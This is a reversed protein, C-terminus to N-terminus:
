SRRSRLSVALDSIEPSDLLLAAGVYVAAGVLLGGSLEVYVAGPFAAGDMLRLWAYLGGAMVAAAGLHRGACRGLAGAKLGDLARRACLWLLGANVTAAISTALALGVHDLDALSLRETLGALVAVAGKGGPEASGMLALGCVANLVLAVAATLVPVRPRELVYFASVLVRTSAVGLLGVAYARLAGATMAGDAATFEGREFLATVIPDALMCLGVTAPICLCWVLQLSHLTVQAMERYRQASAHAALSPLATTGVAVAVIGLPFELFRDAYWLYSISRPPLVSALMTAVVVNIQYAAGGLLTPLLLRRVRGVAPHTVAAFDAATMGFRVLVPLQVALQLAGGILVGAVLSYVPVRLVPALAAACTIVALNLLIPGYAPEAFRRFTHLTGMAWATMGVLWLYPFLAATLRVTLARKEPDLAFGPAFFTVILPALLVGALMVAALVIAAVGGVSAAARL